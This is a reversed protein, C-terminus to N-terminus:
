ISKEERYEILRDIIADRKIEVDKPDYIFELELVPDAYYLNIFDDASIDQMAEVIINADNPSFINNLAKIYNEKYLKNKEGFYNSMIQKDVGRVFEKWRSPNITNIDYQKPNLSNAQITGMNGKYTSVNARKRERTRNRNIQAVKYGVEKKEWKTTKIGSASVIPMEAGRKLFRRYSKIERNFDARTKIGSKIDNVNIRDPLFSEFEPHKKLTRTLKSNFQRVTNSLLTRDKRRWKINSGRSM